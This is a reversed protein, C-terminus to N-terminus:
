DLAVRLHSPTLVRLATTYPSRRIAGSTARRLPNGEALLEHVYEMVPSHMLAAMGADNADVRQLHLVEPRLTPSHALAALGANGLPNWRLDLTRIEGAHPSTALSRMGEPGLGTRQLILSRVGALCRAEALAAFGEPAMPHAALSLLRLPADACAELISALGSASLGPGGIWLRELRSFDLDRVLLAWNADMLQCRVLHLERVGSLAQLARLAPLQRSVWPNHSLVLQDRQVSPGPRPVASPEDVVNPPKRQVAIDLHRVHALRPSGLIALSGEADILNGRLVLSQLAPLRAREALALAGERGIGANSLDLRTLHQLHPSEALAVAGDDGLPCDPLALRRLSAVCGLSTLRRPARLVEHDFSLTHLRWPAQDLAELVDEGVGDEGTRSAFSLARLQGLSEIEALTALDDGHRIGVLRLGFIQGPPLQSIAQVLEHLDDWLQLQLTGWLSTDRQSSVEAVVSPEPHRRVVLGHREVLDAHNGLGSRSVFTGDVPGLSLEQRLHHVRRRIEAAEPRELGSALRRELRILEGRADGVETLADAFVLWDADTDEQVVIAERLRAAVQLLSTHM